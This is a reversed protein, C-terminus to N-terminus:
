AGGDKTLSPQKVAQATVTAVAYAVMLVVLCWKPVADRWEQPAAIWGGALPIISIQIQTSWRRYLKGVDDVLHDRVAQGLIYLVAACALLAVFVACCIALGVSAALKVKVFLFALAALLVVGIAYFM